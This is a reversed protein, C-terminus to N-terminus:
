KLKADSAVRMCYVSAFRWTLSCRSELSHVSFNGGMSAPKWLWRPQSPFVHLRFHPYIPHHPGLQPIVRMGTMLTDTTILGYKREMKEPRQ